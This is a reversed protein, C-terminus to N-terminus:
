AVSPSLPSDINIIKEESYLVDSLLAASKSLCQNCISHGNGENTILVIKPGKLNAIDRKVNGCFVCKKESM